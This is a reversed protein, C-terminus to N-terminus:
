LLYKKSRMQWLRVFYANMIYLFYDGKYHVDRKWCGREPLCLWWSFVGKPKWILNKKRSRNTTATLEAEFQTLNLLFLLHIWKWCSDNANMKKSCFKWINFLATLQFFHSLIYHVQLKLKLVLDVLLGKECDQFIRVKKLTDLHVHIAIEAQESICCLLICNKSKYINYMTIHMNSFM